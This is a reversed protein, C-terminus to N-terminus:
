KQHVLIRPGGAFFVRVKRAGAIQDVVGGGFQSHQIRDGLAYSASARYAQVPRTLDPEILPGDDAKKRSAARKSGPTKVKAAASRYRHRGDCRLCQVKAIQGDVMAVVVHPSDGCKSCISDIDSGAQMKSGRRKSDVAAWRHVAGASALRATHPPRVPM